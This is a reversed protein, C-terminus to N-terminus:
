MILKALTLGDFIKEQRCAPSHYWCDNQFMRPLLASSPVFINSPYCVCFGEYPKFINVCIVRNHLREQITM